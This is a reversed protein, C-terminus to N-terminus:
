NITKIIDDIESLIEARIRVQDEISVKQTTFYNVRSVGVVNAYHQVYHAVMGYEKLQRIKDIESPSFAWPCNDLGITQGFMYDASDYVNQIANFIKEIYEIDADNLSKSFKYEIDDITDDTLFCKMKMAFEVIEDKSISRAISASM